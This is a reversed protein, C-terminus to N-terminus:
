LKVGDYEITIKVHNKIREEVDNIADKYGVAYQESYQTKYKELNQELDKLHTFINMRYEGRKNTTGWSLGM